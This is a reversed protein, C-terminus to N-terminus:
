MRAVAMRNSENLRINRSATEQHRRKQLKWLLMVAVALAIGAVAAGVAIGLNGVIAGTSLGEGSPSGSTTCPQAIVLLVSAGQTSVAPPQCAAAGGVASAFSGEVASRSRLIVYTGATVTSAVAVTVNPLITVVGSVDLSASLSTSLMSLPVFILPEEIVTAAAVSLSTSILSREAGAVIGDAITKLNMTKATCPLMETCNCTGSVNKPACSGLAECSFSSDANILVQPAFSTASTCGFDRTNDCFTANLTLTSLSSFPTTKVAHSTGRSNGLFFSDKFLGSEVQILMGSGLQGAFNDRFTAEICYMLLVSVRSLAVRITGQPCSERRSFLSREAM